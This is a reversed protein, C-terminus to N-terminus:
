EALSALVRVGALVPGAIPELLHAFVRLFAESTTLVSTTVRGITDPV